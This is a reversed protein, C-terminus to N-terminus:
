LQVSGAAVAVDGEGGGTEMKRLKVGLTLGFMSNVKEFGERITDLMLNAMSMAEETGINVEDDTLREKKEANCNNFGIARDFMYEVTRFLELIKDSVFHRSVDNDFMMWKPKGDETYMQKAEVAVALEGSLIKDMAQKFTEASAKGDAAFLTSFKTSFLNTGTAELCLALMDGYTNVLDGIGGYDPLLKVIESNKGIRLEGTNIILPNAVIPTTPRYFVDYGSLGCAQPIVGFKNTEFVCIYGLGFLTYAFYDKAWWEPLAFDFRSIARNLLWRRCFAGLSSDNVHMTSPRIMSNATNIYDYFYPTSM